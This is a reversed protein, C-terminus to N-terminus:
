EAAAKTEGRALASCEAMVASARAIPNTLYFDKVPSAFGSKDLTGAKKALAAFGASATEFDDSRIEDIAAFHPHAVYLRARLANLSDFPLRHGLVDSLARIIAWDERADGPAFGARNAMQVRGETNVYTGSKETYAAAPLIVDAHHAGIDGHTGIYVTFGSTRRTMDLEDAGLLFLVDADTLMAAADMGGEGPVFGLDLGGVRAAATHIVGFGNWDPSVAGVMDALRAAHGLLSLGDARSLAGQGVVIM